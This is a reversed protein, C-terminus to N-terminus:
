KKIIKIIQQNKDSNLKLFYVGKSLNHMGIEQVLSQKIAIRNILKGKINILEITGMSPVESLQLILKDKVPNPYFQIRNKNFENSSLTTTSANSSIVESFLTNDASYAKIKFWVADGNTIGSGDWLYSSATLATTIPLFTVKNNISYEIDYKLPRGDDPNNITWSIPTSTNYVGASPSSISVDPHEYSHLLEAFGVGTVANGDITGSIATAGEFFRFNLETINVESNEYNSTIVLDINKSASTLRWKKSYNRLNDPTFFYELREIEFDSFTYQTNQDEDVYASLIKYKLNNPIENNSDFINWLNLDTGNDLKISFWEYDEGGTIPNFSGYQRDIWATGTVTETTEGVTLSGTVTNDTQSYYYTYNAAGQDFLGDGGVILPRKTTELDFDLTINASATNLEYEFPTPTTSATKNRFYETGGFIKNAVLNLGTESLTTYSSIAQTDQYFTGDSEDTVNLIRFGDLSIDPLLPSIPNAVQYPYYFYTIMFSYEKNSATTIHGSTYWWETSESAHRGEDVPFNIESAPTTVPNYPYTKWAQSFGSFTILIFLAILTTKTNM